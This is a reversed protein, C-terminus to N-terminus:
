AREFYCKFSNTDDIGCNMVPQAAHIEFKMHINGDFYTTGLANVDTVLMTNADYNTLEHGITISREAISNSDVGMVISNEAMAGSNLGIATSRVGFALTYKGLAVSNAGVTMTQNGLATGNGGVVCNNCSFKDGTVKGVANLDNVLVSNAIYNKLGDGLTIAGTAHAEVDRGLVVSGIGSAISNVDAYGMVISGEGLAWMTKEPFKGGGTGKGFVASYDGWAVGNDGAVFSGLGEARTSDGMAVSTIGNAITTVGTALSSRGSAIVNIGMAISRLGTAQAGSGMAVSRSGSATNLVGIAVAGENSATATNGIAISGIGSSLATNGMAISQTGSATSQFGSAFSQTGSATVDEGLAMATDNSAIATDGVAFSRNGSAITLLGMATSNNGLAKTTSGFATSYNGSAKTAIGLAINRNGNTDCTSCQLKDIGTIVLKVGSINGDLQINGGVNLDATLDAYNGFLNGVYGFNIANIDEANLNYTGLNVDFVAGIYPVFQANVDTKNYYISTLVETSTPVNWASVTDGRYYLVSTPANGSGTVRAYVKGVIRGDANVDHSTTLALHIEQAEKSTIEEGIESTAIVAETSDARREVLQWYVQLTETGSTKEATIHLEYIGAVLTSINADIPSIWGQIYNNDTLGVDTTSEEADPSVAQNTLKYDFVGSATDYLYYSTNIATVAKDVYEKDVLVHGNEFEAHGELYYAFDSFFTEGAVGLRIANLDEASLDYVGLNVDFVAGIYSVFENNFDPSTQYNTDFQSANGDIDAENPIYSLINVDAWPIENPYTQVDGGGSHFGTIGVCSGDSTLVSNTDSCETTANTDFQSANGDIDAENPVYPNGTIGAWEVTINDAVNTSLSSHRGRWPSRL